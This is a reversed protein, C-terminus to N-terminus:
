IFYIQERHRLLSKSCKRDTAVFVFLYRKVNKKTTRMRPECSIVVANICIHSSFHRCCGPSVLILVNSEIIIHTTRKENSKYRFPINIINTAHEISNMNSNYTQQRHAFIHQLMKPRHWCCCCCCCCPIEQVSSKTEANAARM